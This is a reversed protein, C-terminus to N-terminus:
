RCSLSGGCALEIVAFTLAIAVIPFAPMYLLARAARPWRLAYALWAAVPFFAALIPFSIISLAAVITPTSQLSGPADFMMPAMMAM